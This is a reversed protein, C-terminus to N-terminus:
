EKWQEAIGFPLQRVAWLDSACQEEEPFTSDVYTRPIAILAYKESPQVEFRTM